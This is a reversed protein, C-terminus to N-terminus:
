INQISRKDQNIDFLYLWVEVAQVDIAWKAYSIRVQKQTGVFNM